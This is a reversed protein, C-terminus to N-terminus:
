STKMDGLLTVATVDTRPVVLHKHKVWVGVQAAKQIFERKSAEDRGEDHEDVDLLVVKDDDMDHCRGIYTRPGETEVVVTMGHLEHREEHFIAM